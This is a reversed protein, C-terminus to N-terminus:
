EISIRRVGAPQAKPVTISLIGNKLSAKVSDHELKNSFQFVRQFSGVSREALWYQPGPQTKESSITSSNVQTPTDDVTSETPTANGNTSSAVSDQKPVFDEDEVTAKQYSSTSHTSLADADPGTKTPSQDLLTSDPATSSVEAESRAAEIASEPAVTPTAQVPANSPPNQETRSRIVLTQSDTFLIEIQQADFGPLEGKLEYVGDQERVDFRPQFSPTAIHQKLIANFHDLPRTTLSLEDMLRFMENAGLSLTPFTPQSFRPFFSAHPLLSM